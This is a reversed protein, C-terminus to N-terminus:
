YFYYIIQYIKRLFSPCLHYKIKWCSDRIVFGIFFIYKDLLAYSFVKNIRKDVKWQVSEVINEHNLTFIGQVQFNQLEYIIDSTKNCYDKYTLTTMTPFVKQLLNNRMICRITTNEITKILCHIRHSNRFPTQLRCRTCHLLTREVSGFPEISLNCKNWVLEFPSSFINAVKLNGEVQKVFFIIIILWIIHYYYVIAGLTLELPQLASTLESGGHNPLDHTWVEKLGKPNPATILVVPKLRPVM